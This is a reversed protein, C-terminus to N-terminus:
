VKATRVSAGRLPWDSLNQKSNRGDHHEPLGPSLSWTGADRISYFSAHEFPPGTNLTNTVIHEPMCHIPRSIEPEHQLSHGRAHRRPEDAWCVLENGVLVDHGGAESRHQEPLFSAEADPFDKLQGCYSLSPKMHAKWKKHDRIYLQAQNNWLKNVQNCCLLSWVPLFKFIEELVLETRLAQDIPDEGTMESM